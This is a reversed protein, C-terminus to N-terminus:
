HHDLDAVALSIYVTTLLMFVLAQIFSVFAGLGLLISPLGWPVLESMIGFVTHDGFMNGALRLTLSVPRVFLGITEIIFFFWAMALIPGGLHKVYAIGNRWLGAVNFTVFVIAALALNNSVCSTAPLFGPVLGLLNNVLIYLFLAGLFPFFIKADKRGMSSEALEFLAETIIELANRPTLGADPVLADVGGRARARDIGRKALWALLVVVGCAVWAAFIVYTEGRQLMGPVLADDAVGPILHYWSFQSAMPRLFGGLDPLSPLNNLLFRTLLDTV